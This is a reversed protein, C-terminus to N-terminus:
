CPVGNIYHKAQFRSQSWLLNDDRKTQDTAGQFGSVHLTEIQAVAKKSIVSTM